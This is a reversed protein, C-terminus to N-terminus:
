VTRVAARTTSRPHFASTPPLNTFARHTCIRTSSRRPSLRRQRPFSPRPSTAAPPKPRRPLSSPKYTISRFLIHDIVHEHRVPNRYPLCVVLSEPFLALFCSMIHGLRGAFAFCVVEEGKEVGSEVKPMNRAADNNALQDVDSERLVALTQKVSLKRQRFRQAAARSSM